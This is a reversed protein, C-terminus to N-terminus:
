YSVVKIIGTMWMLAFIVLIFVNQTIFKRKANTM